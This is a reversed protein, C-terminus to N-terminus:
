NTGSSLKRPLLLPDNDGTRYYLFGYSARSALVRKTYRRTERFPILEVWVDFDVSPWDKVWRKPRGPGANYGPITLLPDDPFFRDRYSALVRSGIAISVEPTTLARRDSPMGVMKGYHQATPSIIQMLGYANASSVAAADFASEERMVAYVLAPEVGQRKAQQTVAAIHPRPFALDWADKWSGSPWHGLWDQMEWRPLAHSHRASGARAYLTAVGWLVAPSAGDILINAADFERRASDIDGQRLLEVARVFAPLAFEPRPEIQFPAADAGESAAALARAARGPDREHLRSYAHLMYYSLPLAAILEEYQQLGKDVEGTEIMARAEFYRERGSSDQGRQAENGGILRVARGLVAAAGPWDSKEMRRLALAFVGDLTMDGKPYDDPMRDLLETFRQEVGMELQALARYWRADDALRHNPLERELESLLREAEPYHKDQFAYKGGLYLAWARSDANKCGKAVEVFRVLAKERQRSNNLAKGQVLRAQCAIPGFATPGLETLLLAAIQEADEHRGAAEMAEARAAREAYNLPEKERRVDEPLVDLLSREFAPVDFRAATGPTLKVLTRILDLTAVRTDIGSQQVSPVSLMKILMEVIRFSQAGWGIPKRPGRVFRDLQALCGAADGRVCELEALLICAPAAAGSSESVRVLAPRARELDGLGMLSRGLGLAAYDMLPWTVQSAREYQQAAGLLDASKERLTGLLLHWRPEEGAEFSQQEVYTAVQASATTFDESAVAEAALALEPASLLPVFSSLAPLSALEPTREAPSGPAVVSPGRPAPAPLPTRVGPPAAGVDSHPPQLAPSCGLWLGALALAAHSLGVRTLALAARLPLARRRSGRTETDNV